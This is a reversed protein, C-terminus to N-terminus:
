KKAAPAPAKVVVNQLSIVAGEIVYERADDHAALGLDGFVEFKQLSPIEVFTTIKYDSNKKASHKAVTGSCIGKFRIEAM